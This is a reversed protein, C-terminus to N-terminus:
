GVRTGSGLRATGVGAGFGAGGLVAGRGLVMAGAVAPDFRGTPGVTSSLGLHLGTGVRMGVEVTCLRYDTHAPREVDLVHRVAAEAEPTLPRRVLVTFRHATDPDALAPGGGGRLRFDEVILPALEPRTREDAQPGSLFLELYRSLAWVTGRRRYLPAIEAVLRRRATEHWRDDLV